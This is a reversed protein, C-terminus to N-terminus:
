RWLTQILNLFFYPYIGLLLSMVATVTLPIVMTLPAESIHEVDIGPKPKEFFGKYVIPVFYAANFLASILLVVMFIVQHINLAGEILYWKSVFGVAPPLGIMSITALGFMGFTIPMKKGVGSLQSVKKLHAAVYIAGAAFFLTIKSFAHAAIHFLGGQIAAPALLVVGLVIYSLQSITSYAIRAKLDDKTLAIISAVLITFSALYATPIDLHLRHMADIGMVCLVIRAISFVGAKVVAVAHLLASVPTPAVMASPLWNHLPMIAAKAIGAIYLAYTLVMIWHPTTTPFIGHVLDTLNFDLTGAYVYTLIMAPLLFLKSTGMLYILYKKAGEMATETQEHGVLPFTAITIVEYFFYMTFINGSFAVGLAGFIALAFFAFFRTQAHEKLSRMYGMNYSTAFIWLFSSVIAFLLSMGDVALKFSIGPILESIKYILVKHNLVPPVLSIVSLFTLIAIIFSVMERKDPDKRMLVILLPAIGTLILPIVMQANVVFEKM